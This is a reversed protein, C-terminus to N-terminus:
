FSYTISIDNNTGTVTGKLWGKGTLGLGGVALGFTLTYKAYTSTQSLVDTFILGLFGEDYASVVQNNNVDMYFWCNVIGSTFSVKWTRMATVTSALVMYDSSTTAKKFVPEVTLVYDAGSETKGYTTVKGISDSVVVNNSSKNNKAIDTSANATVNTFFMLLALLMSLNRISKKM